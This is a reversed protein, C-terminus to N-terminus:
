SAASLMAERTDNNSNRGLRSFFEELLPAHAKAKVNHTQGDLPRYEANPLARALAQMGHQMWEPSKTGAVTLTPTTVAAWRDVPLDPGPKAAALIANDYALTHAIGKLKPWMPLLPFLGIIPRPLGAQRLFLKVADGHRDADLLEHLQAPYDEVSAPRRGEVNFPVEYLVLGVVGSNRAATELALAGGSSHGFLCASGGAEGILVRLDEIEREAAYPQTDGSQGRGRRDYTFVTFQQSLLKALKTSWGVERYCMAGDVLIVPPGEGSRDFAIQTGDNSQVSNM